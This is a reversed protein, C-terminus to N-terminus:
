VAGPDVTRMVQLVFRRLRRALDAQTHCNRLLQRWPARFEVAWRWKQPPLHVAEPSLGRLYPISIGPRTIAALMADRKSRSRTKLRVRLSSPSSQPDLWVARLLNSPSWCIYIESKRDRRLSPVVSWKKGHLTKALPQWAKSLRQDAKLRRNLDATRLDGILRHTPQLGLRDFLRRTAKAVEYSRAESGLLIRYFDSWLFHDETPSPRLYRRSSLVQTSVQQYGGTVLVVHSVDTGPLKVYKRLQGKGQPAMLKHEVGIRRGGCGVVMDLRSSGRGASKQTEVSIPGTAGSLSKPGNATIARWYQRAARGDAQLVAAFCETIFDERRKTLKILRALLADASRDTTATM